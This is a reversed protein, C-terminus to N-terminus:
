VARKMRLKRSLREVDCKNLVVNITPLSIRRGRFWPYRRAPHSLEIDSDPKRTLRYVFAPPLNLPTFGILSSTLRLLTCTESGVPCRARYTFQHFHGDARLLSFAQVLIRMKHSPPFFVLPLGSVIFDFGAPLDAAYDALSSADAQIVPSRPFRRQLIEAFEENREVLYLDEPRVGSDLIARTLSGTGAGLEMVRAGPGIDAAMLKALLRSSPVVAGIAVPTRVWNHLFRGVHEM